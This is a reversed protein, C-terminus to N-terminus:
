SKLSIGINKLNQNYHAKAEIETLKCSAYISAEIMLQRINDGSLMKLSSRTYGKNNLYENILGKEILVRIEDHSKPFGNKLSNTEM